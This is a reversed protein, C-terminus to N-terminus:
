HDGGEMLPLQQRALGLGYALAEPLNGRCRLRVGPWTNRGRCRKCVHGERYGIAIACFLRYNHLHMVVAAGAERAASLARPGLLPNVNHAHVVDARLARVARAVADPVLGGAIMGAGARLRGTVGEL